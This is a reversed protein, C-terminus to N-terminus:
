DARRNPVGERREHGDWLVAVKKDSDVQNEEIKDVRKVHLEFTDALNQLKNALTAAGWILAAVNLAFGGILGVTGDTM